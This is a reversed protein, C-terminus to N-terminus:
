KYDRSGAFLENISIYRASFCGRSTTAQLWSCAIVNLGRAAVVMTRRLNARDRGYTLNRPGVLRGRRTARILCRKRAPSCGLLRDELVQACKLRGRGPEGPRRCRQRRSEPAGSGEKSRASGAQRSVTVELVRASGLRGGVPRERGDEVVFGGLSPRERAM